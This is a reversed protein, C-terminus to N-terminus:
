CYQYSEKRAVENNESVKKTEKHSYYGYGGYRDYGSYYGYRGQRQPVDNVVAGLIRGGVSLISDRAQQSHRRTSKEARLVLITVKSIASLIQGDTVPGVPPSDIIVRDYHDTLETLVGSFSSSNLLESPNPVDVGCCLIDLNEIPGRHITDEIEIAGAILESLGEERNEIQFIKHQM